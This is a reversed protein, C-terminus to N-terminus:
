KFEEADMNDRIDGTREMDYPAPETGFDPINYSKLTRDYHHPDKQPLLFPKSVSGDEAVHCLYPKGYQGDGRKSAFVFWRSNASWSHYTDSRDSNVEDLSWSEGTSLDMMHLGCERHWIPFTGYGAVTFLLWRGDPSAKPHCVSGGCTSADWICEPTGTEGTEPDFSVRYLSYMLKEIDEPLKVTDAACYFVADGEASFCPFTEFVDKRALAAPIIMRNGDFDAICLDSATDFIEMRRSETAHFGPIIINSSFVGWRGDPSLDGYVTSSVMGEAKLNLKRIRGGRNLIAGGKPGRLYFMSSTGKHIHCNMCSNATNSHSALVREDWCTIDRERIEVEDWVEYGPEILRYTLYRDAPDESVAVAWDGLRSSHVYISDGAAESLLRSWSDPNWRVEAGRFSTRCSGATFTIREKRAEEGYNYFNLPAIGAPVTVGRYDPYMGPEGCLDAGRCGALALAAALIILTRNSM